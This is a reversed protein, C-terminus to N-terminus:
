LMKRKDRFVFNVLGNKPRILTYFNEKSSELSVGYFKRRGHEYEIFEKKWKIVLNNVTPIASFHSEWAKPM